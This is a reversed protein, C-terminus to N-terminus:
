KLLEFNKMGLAWLFLSFPEAHLPAMNWYIIPVLIEVKSYDLGLIEAEGKLIEELLESNAATPIELTVDGDLNQIGFRNEKVLKYNLRIGGLLKAFDYYIDGLLTEAGFTNRWDILKFQQTELDFIVNDFQLDGHMLSVAANVVIDDWNINNFYHEWETVAVGDVSRIKYDPKSLSTAMLSVRSRTKQEYFERCSTEINQNVVHWFNERLWRMLKSFNEPTVHEYYSSGPSKEYALFEGNTRIKDPFVKRNFNPKITKQMASLEDPWWKLIDNPLIYTFEGPKTFDFATTESIAKVYAKENGLDTWTELPQTKSGFPIVATFEKAGIKRLDRFFDEKSNIKMIGTFAVVASLGDVKHMSKKIRNEADLEFTQYHGSNEPQVDQVFFISEALPPEFFSENFYGDCPLYWFSSNLDGEACTLSYATGSTESFWDDVELFIIHREPFVLECFDRIQKGKYGLSIGIQLNEPIRGIIHWLIPRDLYPLLGKHLQDSIVTMRSGMGATAIVVDIAMNLKSKEM